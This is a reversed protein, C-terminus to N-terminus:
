QFGIHPNIRMLVCSFALSTIAQTSLPPPAFVKQKCMEPGGDKWCLCWSSALGSAQVESLISCVNIGELSAPQSSWCWGILLGPRWIPEKNHLLHSSHVQGEHKNWLPGLIGSPAWDCQEGKLFLFPFRSAWFYAKYFHAVRWCLFHLGCLDGFQKRDKRSCSLANRLM